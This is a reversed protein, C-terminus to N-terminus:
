SQSGEKEKMRRKGKDGKRREKKEKRWRGKREVAM